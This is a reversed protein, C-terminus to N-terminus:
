LQKMENKSYTENRELENVGSSRHSNIILTRPRQPYTLVSNEASQHHMLVQSFRQTYLVFLYNLCVGKKVQIFLNSSYRSLFVSVVRVSNYVTYPTLCLVAHQMIICLGRKDM